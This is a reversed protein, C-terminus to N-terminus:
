GQFWGAMVARMLLLVMVPVQAYPRAARRRDVFPRPVQSGVPLPVARVSGSRGSDSGVEKRAKGRVDGVVDLLLQRQQQLALGAQM